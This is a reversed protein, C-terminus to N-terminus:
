RMALPLKRRPVPFEHDLERVDENTLTVNLAGRNEQVHELASVKPIAVVNQKLLWALAVQAPAANHRVAIQKLVRNSLLAPRGGSAHEIPSYAMMLIGRERCWPPLDWELPSHNGYRPGSNAHDRGSVV